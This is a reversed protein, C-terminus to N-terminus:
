NRRKQSVKVIETTHISPSQKQRLQDARVAATDREPRVDAAEDGPRQEHEDEAIGLPDDPVRVM